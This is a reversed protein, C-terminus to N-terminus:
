YFWPIESQQIMILGLYKKLEMSGVHLYEAIRNFFIVADTGILGGGWPRITQDRHNKSSRSVGLKFILACSRM